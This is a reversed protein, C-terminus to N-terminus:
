NVPKQAESAAARAAAGPSAASTADSGADSRSRARSERGSPADKGTGSDAGTQAGTDAGTEATPAPGELVAQGQQLTGPSQVVQDVATLGSLIEVRSDTRRGTQIRKEVAKGDEVVVAKEIGAFVVV